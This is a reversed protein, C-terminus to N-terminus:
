KQWEFFGDSTIFFIKLETEIYYNQLFFEMNVFILFYIEKKKKKKKKVDPFIAM